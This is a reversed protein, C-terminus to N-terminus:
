APATSKWSAQAEPTLANWFIDKALRHAQEFWVRWEQEMDAVSRPNPMFSRRIINNVMLHKERMREDPQAVAVQTLVSGITESRASQYSLEDFQTHEDINLNLRLISQAEALDAAPIRNYFGISYSTVLENPNIARFKEIIGFTADRYAEYGPAWTLANVTIMRPGLQIVGKNDETFFRYAAVHLNQLQSPDAVLVMPLRQIKPYESKVAEYFSQARFEVLTSTDLDVQTAVEALPTSFPRM